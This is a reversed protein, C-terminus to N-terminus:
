NEECNEIYLSLAETLYKNKKDIDNVFKIEDGFREKVAPCKLLFPMIYEKYDSKKTVEYYKGNPLKISFYPIKADKDFGNDWDRNCERCTSYVERKKKEPNYMSGYIANIFIQFSGNYIRRFHRKVGTPKSPVLPIHVIDFGDLRYEKVNEGDLVHIKENEDMYEVKNTKYGFIRIDTIFCYTTDRFKVIFDQPIDKDADEEITETNQSFLSISVFIFLLLLAFLKAM